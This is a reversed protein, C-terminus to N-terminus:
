GLCGPHVVQPCRLLDQLRHRYELELGTAELAPTPQRTALRSQKDDEANNTLKM